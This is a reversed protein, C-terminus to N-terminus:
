HENNFSFQYNTSQQTCSGCRYGFTSKTVFPLM